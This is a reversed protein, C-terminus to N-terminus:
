QHGMEIVIVLVTESLVLVTNKRWALDNAIRQASSNVRACTLFSRGFIETCRQNQSNTTSTSLSATSLGGRRVTSTSSPQKFQPSASRQDLRNPTVQLGM